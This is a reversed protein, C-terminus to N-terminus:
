ATWRGCRRGAPGGSRPRTRWRSWRRPSRDDGREVLLRQATDRWWGNPRSLLSVLQSSAPTAGLTTRDRTTREHVVRYIRGLGIPQELVRSAIQDRLYETIYTHHQIVGRYMDVVYLTGDPANSLHVPRFREDTSTLFETQGYAKRARLTRGDDSLMLRSVVNATPEAVFVNGYLEAPLRDGRYVTPACAASFTALTGDTRLVGHQYARNTGPTQHAPWVENVNGSPDQLASTVAAPGCCRRIARTTRRRCWIWTCCRSTTIATCGGRM